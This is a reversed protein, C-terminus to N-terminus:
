DGKAIREEREKETVFVEDKVLYWGRYEDKYIEGQDYLRQLVDTVVKEHDADTTRIFRDYAVGMRDMMAKWAVVLDDCHAKADLGRAQAAELVKQGHEDTGTLFRVERGKLRQWRSAADAATTTYAHGVHPLGNVYYIPTTIYFTEGPM